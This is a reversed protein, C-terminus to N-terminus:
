LAYVYVHPGMTRLVHGTTASLVDLPSTAVEFVEAPRPGFRRECRQEEDVRLQIRAHAIHLAFRCDFLYSHSKM